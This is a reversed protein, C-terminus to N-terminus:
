VAASVDGLALLFASPRRALMNAILVVADDIVRAASKDQAHNTRLPHLAYPPKRASDVHWSVALARVGYSIPTRSRDANEISFPPGTKASM